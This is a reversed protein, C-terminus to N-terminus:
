FDDLSELLASTSESKKLRQKRSCLRFVAYHCCSFFLILILVWFYTAMAIKWKDSRYVEDGVVLDIEDSKLVESAIVETDEVFDETSEKLNGAVNTVIDHAATKTQSLTQNFFDQIQSILHMSFFRM